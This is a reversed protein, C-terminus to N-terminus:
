EGNQRKELVMAKFIDGMGEEHILNKVTLWLGTAEREPLNEMRQALMDLIGGRILFSSQSLLSHFTFGSDEAWHRLLTFNIHATIDKEGPADYPDTDM